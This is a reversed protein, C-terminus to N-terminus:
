RTAPRGVERFVPLAREVMDDSATLSIRFYEPTHLLQGPLVFVARDALADWLAESARGPWRCWLYFTGEPEVTEFGGSRLAGM